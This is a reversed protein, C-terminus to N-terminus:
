GRSLVAMAPDAPNVLCTTALGVPQADVVRQKGSSGSSYGDGFDYQGGTYTRGEYTYRFQIVARYTTSGDSYHSDLESSTIVCPVQPWHGSAVVNLLPKPGGIWCFFCGMLLFPVGFLFGFASRSAPSSSSRLGPKDRRFGPKSNRISIKM